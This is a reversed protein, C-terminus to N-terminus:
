NTIFYKFDTHVSTYEKEVITTHVSSQFCHTHVYRAVELVEPKVWM